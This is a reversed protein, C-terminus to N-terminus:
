AGWINHLFNFWNRGMTKEIRASSWGRKEMATILNPYKTLNELGIAPKSVTGQGPLRINNVGKDRRLWDFWNADHGQTFDTGIGVNDEGLLNVVYEMVEVCDDVTTAEGKPMFRPYPAFGVFGGKDVVRRMEEDTKNRPYDMVAMPTCHTYAVPQQSIEVVERSTVAGVHSLDILIRLRNMEAILDRGLDTVGGDRTEWCGSGFYNQNNYTFQCIRVGLDHFLQLFDLREEIASTNQWGLIIGTKGEQRAVEIDAASFVQMIIDSNDRFYQKWEAINEMTQRFNEWISCTCNAATLGGRRMDEFISRSWRSVVLGDIIMPNEATMIHEREPIFLHRYGYPVKTKKDMCFSVFTRRMSM